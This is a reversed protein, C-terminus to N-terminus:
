ALTGARVLQEFDAVCRLSADVAMWSSSCSTHEQSEIGGSLPVSDRRGGVKCEPYNQAYM